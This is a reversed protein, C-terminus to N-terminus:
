SAHRLNILHAWAVLGVGAITLVAESTGHGTAVATAMLALGIIGVILPAAKGHRLMGIGLSLAGVVVASVLGIRHVEPALLLGGGLGLASVVVIGLVCHM